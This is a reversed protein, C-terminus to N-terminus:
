AVMEARVTQEADKTRSTRNDLHPNDALVKRRARTWSEANFVTFDVAKDKFMLGSAINLFEGHGDGRTLPFDELIQKTISLKETIM